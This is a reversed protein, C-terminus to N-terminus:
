PRSEGGDYIEKRGHKGNQGAHEWEYKTMLWTLLLEVCVAHTDWVAGAQGPGRLQLQVSTRQPQGAGWLPSRRPPASPFM